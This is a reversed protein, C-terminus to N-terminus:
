RAGRGMLVAPVTALLIYLDLLVSKRRSYLVDAAIRRRYSTDNRGTVQWIGTLGPKISVYHTIYRGYRTIEAEIIPRPGVLSMDGRIVNFLQPLEDISSQRLFAGIPTIRPDRSLKQNSEWEAQLEPKTALLHALHEEADVRMSRFKYCEFKKGNLGIRSQKFLVPGPSFVAVCIATFILVPLLFVLMALAIAVDLLRSAFGGSTNTGASLETAMLLLEQESVSAGSGSPFLFAGDQSAEVDIVAEHTRTTHM